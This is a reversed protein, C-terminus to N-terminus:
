GAVKKNSEQLRERLPPIGYKASYSNVLHATSKFNYMSAIEQIPFDSNLVLYRIEEMKRELMWQYPTNNFHKKFHRTFSKLCDYGCRNALETVDNSDLYNSIVKDQFDTKRSKRSIFRIMVVEDGSSPKMVTREGNNFNFTCASVNSLLYNETM